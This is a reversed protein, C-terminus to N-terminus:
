GSCNLWGRMGRRCTYPNKSSHWLFYPLALAQRYQVSTKSKRVRETLCCQMHCIVPPQAYLLGEEPITVAARLVRRAPPTRERCAAIGKRKKEKEEHHGSSPLKTCLRGMAAQVEMSGWSHITMVCTPTFAELDPM